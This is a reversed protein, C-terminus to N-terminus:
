HWQGTWSQQEREEYLALVLILIFVSIISFVFEEMRQKSRIYVQLQLVVALRKHIDEAVTTVSRAHLRRKEYRDFSIYSRMTGSTENSLYWIKNTKRLLLAAARSLVPCSSLHNAWRRYNVVDINLIWILGRNIMSEELILCRVLSRSLKRTDTRWAWHLMNRKGCDMTRSLYVTGFHHWNGVTRTM